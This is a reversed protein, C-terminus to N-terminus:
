QWGTVRAAKWKLEFKAFNVFGVTRGAEKVRGDTRSRRVEMSLVDGDLKVQDPSGPTRDSGSVVGTCSASRVEVQVLKAKGSHRVM